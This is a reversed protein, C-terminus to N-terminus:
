NVVVFYVGWTDLGAERDSMWEGTYILNLNFQRSLSEIESKFLYRMKHTEKLECISMSQKNEIFIQYNVVVLNDNPHIVPEAIRTIAIQEDQARKVRFTPPNHLVAPGYWVDFIFVGGVELHEKATAFAAVLDKNGVQYSIVHFLSLVADFKKNLRVKQIDEDTFILKNAIDATLEAKHITAQQLMEESFDVGHVQYGKEALLAAHVGTGCGLELIQCAKPAHTQLIEHIFKAEGVYDKDKYLLNYYNAYNGFIGM